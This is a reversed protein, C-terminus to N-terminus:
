KSKNNENLEKLTIQKDKKIKVGSDGFSLICDKLATLTKGDDSIEINDLENLVDDITAQMEDIWTRQCEKTTRFDRLINACERLKKNEAEKREVGAIFGIFATQYHDEGMGWFQENQSFEIRLKEKVQEDM